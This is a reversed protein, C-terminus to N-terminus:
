QEQLSSVSNNNFAMLDSVRGPQMNTPSEPYGSNRLQQHQHPIFSVGIQTSPEENVRFFTEEVDIRAKNGGINSNM